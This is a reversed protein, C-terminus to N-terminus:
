SSWYKRPTNSNPIWMYQISTRPGVTFGSGGVSCSTGVPGFCVDISTSSDNNDIIFIQGIQSSTTENSPPSVTLALPNSSTNIYVGNGNAIWSDNTGTGNRHTINWINSSYITGSSTTTNTITNPHWFILFFILIIFIISIVGLVAGVHSSYASPKPEPEAPVTATTVTTGPSTSGAVSTTTVSPQNIITKTPTLAVTQMTPPPPGSLVVTSM